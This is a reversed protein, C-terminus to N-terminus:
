PHTLIVGSAGVAILGGAGSGWIGHLLAGGTEDESWATGNWHHTLGYTDQGVIWVDEASRGFVGMLYADSFTTDAPAAWAKGDWHLVANL